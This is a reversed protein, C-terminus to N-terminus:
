RDYCKTGRFLNSNYKEVFKEFSERIPALKDTNRRENRTEKDDFRCCRLLFQFRKLSMVTRLMEIGMGDTSWLEELIHRNSRLVGALLLLGILAKSEINDTLRADSERSFLNSVTSNYKNTCKVIIELM